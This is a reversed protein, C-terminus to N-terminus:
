RGGDRSERKHHLFHFGIRGCSREGQELGGGFRDIAPRSRGDARLLRARARRHRATGRGVAEEVYSEGMGVIRYSRYALAQEPRVIRQLIPVVSQGFMPQLERPPGPLLFLHHPARSGRGCSLARARNRKDNPLVLAGRPVEAQRLIRNTMRNGTRLLRQTITAGTRTPRWSGASCNPPSKARSM